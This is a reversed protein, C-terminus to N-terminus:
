GHDLGKLLSMFATLQLALIILCTFCVTSDAQAIQLCWSIRTGLVHGDSRGMQSQLSIGYNGGGGGGMVDHCKRRHSLKVTALIVYRQGDTHM